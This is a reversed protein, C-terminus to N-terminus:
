RARFVTCAKDYARATIGTAFSRCKVLILTDASQDHIVEKSSLIKIQKWHPLQDVLIFNCM